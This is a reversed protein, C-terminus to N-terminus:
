SFYQRYATAMFADRSHKNANTQAVKQLYNDTDVPTMYDGSGENATLPAAEFYDNGFREAPNLPQIGVEYQMTGHGAEGAEERAAATGSTAVQRDILENHPSVALALRAPDTNPESDETFSGAVRPSLGVLQGSEDTNESVNENWDPPNEQEANEPDTRVPEVTSRVDSEDQQVSHSAGLFWANTM